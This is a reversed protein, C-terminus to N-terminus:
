VGAISLRKRQMERHPKPQEFRGAEKDFLKRMTRQAEEPAGAAIAVLVAVHDPGDEGRSAPARSQRTPIRLAPAIVESYRIFFPNNSARLVALHFAIRIEAENDWYELELMPKLAAQIDALQEPRACQAALAAAQPELASRLQHLQHLLELPRNSDALWRLVDPDFLNWSETPLIFNGLRPRSSIVGKAALMKMAERTVSRSVGYTSGLEHDTPFPKERYEGTIVARGVIDLLIFSLTEGPQGRLPQVRRDGSLPAPTVSGLPM